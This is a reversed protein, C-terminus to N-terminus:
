LVKVDINKFRSNLWKLQYSAYQFTKSQLKAICRDVVGKEECDIKEEAYLLLKQKNPSTYCDYFEKYGISQLIGKQFNHTEFADFLQFAERLGGQSVMQAIRQDIKQQLVQKDAKVQVFVSNYRLQQEGHQLKFYAFLANVLKRRDNPHLFNASEPDVLQLLKHYM